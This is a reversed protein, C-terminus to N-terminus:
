GDGGCVVVHAVEEEVAPPLRLVECRADRIIDADSKARLSLRYVVNAHM